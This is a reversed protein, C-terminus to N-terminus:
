QLIDVLEVVLAIQTDVVALCSRLQLDESTAVDVVPVFCSGVQELEAM